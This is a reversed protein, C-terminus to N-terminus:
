RLRHGKASNVASSAQSAPAPVEGVHSAQPRLTKSLKM